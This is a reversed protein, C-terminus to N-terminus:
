PTRGQRRGNQCQRREERRADRYGQDLHDQEEQLPVRRGKSNQTSVARSRKMAVNYDTKVEGVNIGFDAAHRVRNAIFSSELLAKAPICGWLVCTGGLGEKEVVRDFAWATRLPHCRCIRGSRRRHLDRRVFGYVRSQESSTITRTRRRLRTVGGLSVPTKFWPAVSTAGRIKGSNTIRCLTSSGHRDRSRHKPRLEDGEANKCLNRARLLRYLGARGIRCFAIRRRGNEDTVDDVADAVAHGIGLDRHVLRVPNV